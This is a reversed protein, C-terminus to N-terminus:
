DPHCSEQGKQLKLATPNNPDQFPTPLHGIPDLWQYGTFIEARPTPEDQAALATATLIVALMLSLGTCLLRVSRQTPCLSM